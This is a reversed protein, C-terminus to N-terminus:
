KGKICHSNEDVDGGGIRQTSLFRDAAVRFRQTSLIRDPARARNLIQSCSRFMIQSIKYFGAARSGALNGVGRRGGGPESVCGSECVKAHRRPQSEYVWIIMKPFFDTSKRIVSGFISFHQM